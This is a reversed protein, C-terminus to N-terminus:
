LHRLLVPLRGTTNQYPRPPFDSSWLALHETVRLGPLPFSLAVSLSVVLEPACAGTPFPSFTDAEPPNWSYLIHRSLYSSVLTVPSRLLKSFGVQLLALYTGCQPAGEFGQRPLSASRTLSCSGSRLILALHIVVTRRLRIVSSPKRVAEANVKFKKQFSEISSWLNFTNQVTASVFLKELVDSIIWRM